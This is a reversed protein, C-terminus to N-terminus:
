KGAKADRENALRDAAYAESDELRTLGGHTFTALAVNHGAKRLATVFDAAMRDADDARAPNHHSGVGQISIHWNGM